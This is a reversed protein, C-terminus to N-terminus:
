RALLLLDRSETPDWASGDFGGSAQRAHFGATDLISEVEDRKWGRLRVERTHKVEVAPERGPRLVLTTPFFRVTGDPQPSM